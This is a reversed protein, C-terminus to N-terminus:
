FSPKKNPLLKSVAIYVAQAEVLGLKFSAFLYVAVGGAGALAAQVLIGFFTNTYVFPELAYILGYSVAGGIVSSMIIKNLGVLVFKELEYVVQVGAQKRLIDRLSLALYSANFISSFVFGLVLGETGLRQFLVYSLVINIAVSVLNAKVPTKTNHRAFFARSLLTTLSQSVLSFAFIGLFTFTTVTDEWSFNGAGLVLRVVYARFIVLFVTAPVMLFLIQRVSKKLSNAYGIENKNAFHESFVPFVASSLAFAFIGIPVSQLNFSQNVATISGPVVLSAFITTLLLTVNALDFTFIRPLYMQLMERFAPLKSNFSWKLSFGGSWVTYVQVFLQALAGLIVGYGLGLIGFRGFLFVIGFIIGLNYLLPALSTIIFKKKANLVGGFITSATFIIPTLLFLRTLKLTDQLQQGSFGPVLYQTMPKSFVFLILCVAGVFLLGFDLCTNAFKEAEERSAKKERAFVPLFAVSLTSLVFLNTVFDPIRFASFYSDLLPGQGFYSAFLRERFLAALKTAFSFFGIIIAAKGVTFDSELIKIYKIM